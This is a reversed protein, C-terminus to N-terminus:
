MHGNTKLFLADTKRDEDSCSPPRAPARNADRFAAAGCVGQVTRGGVGRKLLDEALEVRVAPRTHTELYTEILATLTRRNIGLDDAWVDPTRYHTVCELITDITLSAPDHPSPLTLSQSGQEAVRVIDCFKIDHAILEEYTEQYSWGSALCDMIDKFQRPTM